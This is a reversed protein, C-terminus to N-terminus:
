LCVCQTLALTTPPIVGAPTGLMAPGGQSYVHLMPGMDTEPHERPEACQARGKHVWSTDNLHMDIGWPM